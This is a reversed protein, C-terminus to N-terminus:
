RAKPTTVLRAVGGPAAADAVETVTAVHHFTVDFLYSQRLPRGEDGGVARRLEILTQTSGRVRYAEASGALAESRARADSALESPDIRTFADSPAALYDAVLAAAPARDEPDLVTTGPAIHQLIKQLYGATLHDDIQSKIAFLSSEPRAGGRRMEGAGTLQVLTAGEDGRRQPHWFGFLQGPVLPVPDVNNVFRHVFPRDEGWLEDGAALSGFLLDGIRPAGFTYVDHVALAPSGACSQYDRSTARPRDGGCAEYRAHVFALTALAGGLSHGTLYLPRHGAGGPHRAGLFRRLGHGRAGGPSVEIEADDDWLSRFAELFGRHVEGFATPVLSWRASTLADEVGDTGRFAVVGVGPTGVYFAYSGTRRNEFLTIESTELGFRGLEGVIEERATYTARSLRAMWYADGPSFSGPATVELGFRDKSWVRAEAESAAVPADATGDCASLAGLLTATIAGRVLGRITM